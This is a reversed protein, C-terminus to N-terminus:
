RAVERLVSTPWRIGSDVDDLIRRLVHPAVLTDDACRRVEETTMWAVELIDDGPSPDGRVFHGGFVFRISRIDERVLGTYVALIDTLFVGLGTEELAERAAGEAVTEGFEVHGGPLNWKGHSADDKGERVLLIKGRDAVVVSAHVRLEGNM